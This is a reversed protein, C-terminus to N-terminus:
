SLVQINTKQVSFSFFNQSSGILHFDHTIYKLFMRALSFTIDKTCCLVEKQTQLWLISSIQCIIDNLVSAQRLSWNKPKRNRAKIEPLNTIAVPDTGARHKLEKLQNLTSSNNPLPLVQTNYDAKFYSTNQNEKCINKQLNLWSCQLCDLGATQFRNIPSSNTKM